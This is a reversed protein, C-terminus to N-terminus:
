RADPQSKDVILKCNAIDKEGVDKTVLTLHPTFHFTHTEPYMRVYYTKGAEVEMELKAADPNAAAEIVATALPMMMRLSKNVDSLLALTGPGTEYPFYGGHLLDTIKRGNVSLFYTRDYGFSEGPSRYFYILAKDPGSLAQPFFKPGTPDNFTCGAVFTIVICATVLFRVFM